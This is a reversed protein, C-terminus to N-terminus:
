AAGAQQYEARVWATLIEYLDRQWEPETFTHNAQAITRVTFQDAVNAFLPLFLERFEAWLYDNEPYVFLLRKRARLADRLHTMLIRNLSPDQAPKRRYLAEARKALVALMTRYDSEMSFFRKWADLSLARQFYRQSETRLHSDLIDKVGRVEAQLRVPMGVMLIGSVSPHTAGAHLATAAGGCLGSLLVRQVGTESQLFRVAAHTDPVWAGEEINKYLLRIPSGEAPETWTGESEGAGRADFRLVPVGSATWRQALKISMRHAGSRDLPGQNLVVVGSGSSSPQRPTHLTGYLRYGECDFSVVRTVM